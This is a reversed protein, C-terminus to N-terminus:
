YLYTYEECRFSTGRRIGFFFITICLTSVRSEDSEGTDALSITESDKLMQNYETQFWVIEERENQVPSAHREIKEKIRLSTPGGQRYRGTFMKNFTVLLWYVKKISM